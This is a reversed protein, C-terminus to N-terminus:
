PQRRGPPKGPPPQGPQKRFESLDIGQILDVVGKSADFRYVAMKQTPVDVVFLYEEDMQPTTGVSMIYDGGTATMGAASVPTPRTTVLVLGVLMIAATTSLVGIAFNRQDM